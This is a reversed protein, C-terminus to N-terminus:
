LAPAPTPRILHVMGFRKRRSRRRAPLAGRGDPALVSRDIHRRRDRAPRRLRRRPDAESHHLARARDAAPDRRFLIDTVVAGTRLAGQKLIYRRGKAWPSDSLWCVDAVLHTRTQARLGVPGFTDGRSADIERDLTITVSRGAGAFARPGDFTSIGAIIARAGSAAVEIEDGVAILGSDM